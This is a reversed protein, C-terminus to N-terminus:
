DWPLRINGDNLEADKYGLTALKENAEDRELTLTANRQELKLIRNNLDRVRQDDGGSKRSNGGWESGSKGAIKLDYDDVLNAFDSDVKVRQGDVTKTAKQFASRAFGCEQAVEDRKITGDAKLPLDGNRLGEELREKLKALNQAKIEQKSLGQPKNSMM